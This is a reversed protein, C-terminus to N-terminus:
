DVRVVYPEVKDSNSYFSLHRLGVGGGPIADIVTNEGAYIAVHTLEDLSRPVSYSQFFVIDGVQAQELPILHGGYSSSLSYMAYECKARAPPNGPAAMPLTISRGHLYARYALWCCDISGDGQGRGYPMGMYQSAAGFVSTGNGVTGANRVALDPNRRIVVKGTEIERNLTDVDFSEVYYAANGYNETHVVDDDDVSAIYAVHGYPSDHGLTGSAFSIVDGQEVYGADTITEWRSLNREDGWEFGHGGYPTLTAYTYVWHAPTGGMDRNVRWFVFDTCNGYYYNTAPNPTNYVASPSGDPNRVKDRWPYDDGAIMVHNGAEDNLVFNVLWSPLFSCLIAILVALIVIAVLAIGVGGSVMGVVAGIAKMVVTSVARVAATTVRRAFYAQKGSAAGVTRSSKAASLHRFRFRRVLSYTKGSSGKSIARKSRYVAFRGVRGAQRMATKSSVKAAKRSTKDFVIKAQQLNDEQAARHFSQVDRTMKRTSRIYPKVLKVQSTRRFRSM